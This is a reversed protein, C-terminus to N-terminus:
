NSSPQEQEFKPETADLQVGPKAEKGEGSNAANLTLQHFGEAVTM